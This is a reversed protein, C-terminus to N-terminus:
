LLSAGNAKKWSQSRYYAVFDEADVNTYGKEKCYEAVEEATPPVFKTPPDLKDALKRLQKAASKKEKDDSKQVAKEAVAPLIQASSVCRLCMELIGLTDSERLIVAGDEQPKDVIEPVVPQTKPKDAEKVKESGKATKRQTPPDPAPDDDPQVDTQGPEIVEVQGSKRSARPPDVAASEPQKKGGDGDAIMRIAERISEPTEFAFRKANSGLRMYTEATRRSYDFHQGLWNHWDGHEIQQRAQLLARGSAIADQVTLKAAQQCKEGFLNAMEALEKLTLGDLPILENTM